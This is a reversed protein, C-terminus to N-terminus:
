PTTTSLTFTLAKSYTGTRLAENQGISQEFALTVADNSTPGSYTLLSTPASSGGVAAFATGAGAASSAKAQLPATLSFAGNVLRGTATASPDSVSLLADGATSIVNATTSAAYTRAVGPTFGPFSAATGLSLALTAPVTGTASGPVDTAGLLQQMWSKLEQAKAALQARAAADGSEPNAAVAQVAAIDALSQSYGTQTLMAYKDYAANLSATAADAAGATLKGGALQDAVLLRVERHTVCNAPKLGATTLIGELITQQYWATNAFLEWNHGLVQTFSRGGAYNNCWTIPHDAGEMNNANSSVGIGTRYTDDNLTLLPHVYPRPKRNFAYLEDM